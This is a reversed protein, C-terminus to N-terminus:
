SIGLIQKVAREKDEASMDANSVVARTDAQQKELLKLRRDSQELKQQGQALKAADHKAKLGYSAIEVLDKLQPIEPPKEENMRKEFVDQGIQDMLAEYFPDKMRAIAERIANASQASAVARETMKALARDALQRKEEQAYWRRLAERSVSLGFEKQCREAAQECTLTPPVFLWRRVYEQQGETLGSIKSPRPKSM